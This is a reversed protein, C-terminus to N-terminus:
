PYKFRSRINEVATRTVLLTDGSYELHVSVLLVLDFSQNSTVDSSYNTELINLSTVRKAVLFALYNEFRHNEWLWYDSVSDLRLSLSVDIFQTHSDGFQDLFIWGKLHVCILFSTLGDQS